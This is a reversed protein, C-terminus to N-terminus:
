TKFKLKYFFFTKWGNSEGFINSTQQTAKVMFSM